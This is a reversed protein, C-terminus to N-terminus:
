PAWDRALRAQDTSRKLTAYHLRCLPLVVQKNSITFDAYPISTSECRAGRRPAWPPLGMGVRAVCGILSGAM